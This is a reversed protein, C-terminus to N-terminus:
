KAGDTRKKDLYMREDGCSLLEQVTRGDAPFSACGVSIGIRYQHQEMAVPQELTSKIRSVLADCETESMQQDLVLLFEDGGIRGIDENLRLAERLRSAVEILVRDGDLHGGLDNVQKFDNLDCFLVHCQRGERDAHALSKQLQALIQRRNPLGTLADLNAQRSLQDQARKLATVDHAAVVAGSIVGDREQLPEYSVEMFKPSAYGPFTFEKRYFVSEGGFCRDLYTRAVQKFAQEGIVESVHRGVIEERRRETARLYADNVMRYRYDLGVISLHDKVRNIISILANIQSHSLPQQRSEEM